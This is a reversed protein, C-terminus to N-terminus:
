LSTADNLDSHDEGNNRDVAELLSWVYDQTEQNGVEIERTYWKKIRELRVARQSSSNIM